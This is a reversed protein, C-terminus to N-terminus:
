SRARCYHMAPAGGALVVLQAARQRPVPLQERALRGRLENSVSLEAASTDSLRAQVEAVTSGLMVRAALASLENDELWRADDLLSPELLLDKDDSPLAAAGVDVTFWLVQPSSALFSKLSLQPPERLQVRVHAAHRGFHFAEM